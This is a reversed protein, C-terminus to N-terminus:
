LSPTIVFHYCVRCCRNETRDFLTKIRWGTWSSLHWVIKPALHFLWNPNVSDDCSYTYVSRLEVCTLVAVHKHLFYVGVCFTVNDRRGVEGRREKQAHM